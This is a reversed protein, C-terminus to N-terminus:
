KLTKGAQYGKGIVEGLRLYVQSVPVWAVPDIKEPDPRGDTLCNTDIYTGVVEGIVLNHSGNDLSTLLRCEMNVPCESILPATDIEETFVDFLKSKDTDKGSYIGCYDVEKVLKTSAVNVSFSKNQEIGEMTYRGKRVAISITPPTQGAIGCWSATMFNFKENVQTGVLIAPMPLLLNNFKTKTKTKEM